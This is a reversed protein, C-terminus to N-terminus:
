IGLLFIKRVDILFNKTGMANDKSKIMGREPQPVGAEVVGEGVADASGDEVGM